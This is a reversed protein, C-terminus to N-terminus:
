KDGDKIRDKYAFWSKFEKKQRERRRTEKEADILAQFYGMLNDLEIHLGYKGMEDIVKHCQKMREQDLEDFAGTRAWQDIIYTPSIRLAACWAIWLDWYIHRNGSELQSMYPRSIGMLKGAAEQSIGKKERERKMIKRLNQIPVEFNKLKKKKPM